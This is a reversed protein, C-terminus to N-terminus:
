AAGEAILAADDAAVIRLTRVEGEIAGAPLRVPLYHESRGTAPQEVLASVTKGVVRELARRRAADGA